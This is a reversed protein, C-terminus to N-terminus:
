LNALIAGLVAGYLAHGAVVVLATARGWHVGFPGPRPVVGARVAASIMGLLPLAAATLAGQAVGAALGTRMSAGRSIEFIAAYIPPLVLSGLVLLLIFGLTEAGPHRPERFVISGLQLGPSFRTVGLSRLLWFFAAALVISVFGALAMAAM